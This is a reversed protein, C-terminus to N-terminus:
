NKMKDSLELLQGNFFDIWEGLQDRNTDIRYLLHILSEETEENDDQVVFEYSLFDTLKAHIDNSRSCWDVLQIKFRDRETSLGCFSNISQFLQKLDDFVVALQDFLNPSLANM